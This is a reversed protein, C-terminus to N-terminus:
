KIKEVFESALALFDKSVKARPMDTIIKEQLPESRRITANFLMDNLDNRYNALKRRYTNYHTTRNIVLGLIRIKFDLLTERLKEATKPNETIKALTWPVLVGHVKKLVPLVEEKFTSTHTDVGITDILVYDYRGAKRRNFECYSIVKPEDFYKSMYLTSEQPDSDVILVKKGQNHLAIGLNLTITTKGVGGKPNFVAVIRVPM